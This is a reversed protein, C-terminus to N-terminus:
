NGNPFIPIYICQPPKIVLSFCDFIQYLDRGAEASKRNIGGIVRANEILEQLIRGPLVREPSYALLFDKGAQLGSRELIPAVLDLTTRPPSTSELIVLNGQQLYPIISETAATVYGLDASKNEPNIPTPVAIIFADAREPKSQVVLNGSRIAAQVMTRLGPEYIHIEERRLSEVVRANTDVGTVQLGHTAFTSATPLGIYGLGLICIKNIDM